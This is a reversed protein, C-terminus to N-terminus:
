RSGAASEVWKRAETWKMWEGAVQRTAVNLRNWVNITSIAILLVALASEDYYKAAENWIEDPVPDRRDSLRTVAEGVERPSSFNNVGEEGRQAAAVKVCEHRQEIWVDHDSGVTGSSNWIRQPLDATRLSPRLLRDRERATRPKRLWREDVSFNSHDHSRASSQEPCKAEYELVSLYGFDVHDCVRFPKALEFQGGVGASSLSPAGHIIHKGSCKPASPLCFQALVLAAQRTGIQYLDQCRMPYTREEDVGISQYKKAPRYM